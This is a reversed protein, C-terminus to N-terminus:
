MINGRVTYEHNNIRDAFSAYGSYHTKYVFNTMGAALICKHAKFSFNEVKVAVDCFAGYFRQM